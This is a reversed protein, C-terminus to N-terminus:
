LKMNRKKEANRKGERKMENQQENDKLILKMRIQIDIGTGIEIITNAMVIDRILIKENM